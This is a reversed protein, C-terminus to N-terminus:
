KISCYMFRLIVSMFFVIDFRIYLLYNLSGVLSRFYIVNVVKIGNNFVLKENVNMFTFFSNCYLM